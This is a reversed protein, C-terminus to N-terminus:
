IVRRKFALRLRAFGEEVFGAGTIFVQAAFDRPQEGTINRAVTEDLRRGDFNRGSRKGGLRADISCGYRPSAWDRRRLDPGVL